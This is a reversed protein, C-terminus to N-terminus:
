ITTYKVISALSINLANTEAIAFVSLLVQNGLFGDMGKLFVHNVCCTVDFGDVMSAMTIYVVM